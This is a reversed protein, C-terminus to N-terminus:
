FGSLWELFEDTTVIGNAMNKRWGKVEEVLRDFTKKALDRSAKAM